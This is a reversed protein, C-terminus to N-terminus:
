KVGLQNRYERRLWHKYRAFYEAALYEPSRGLWAEVEDCHEYWKEQCWARFTM